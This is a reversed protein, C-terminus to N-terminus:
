DEFAREIAKVSDSNTYFGKVKDFADKAAQVDVDRTGPVTADLRDMTANLLDLDKQALETNGIQLDKIDLAELSSGQLKIKIQKSDSDSDLTQIA